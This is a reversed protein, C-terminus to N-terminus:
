EYSYAYSKYGVLAVRSAQAAGGAAGIESDEDCPGRPADRVLGTALLPPSVDHIHM